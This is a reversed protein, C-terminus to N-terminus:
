RGRGDSVEETAGPSPTAAPVVTAPPAYVSPTPPVREPAEPPVATATATGTATATATLAPAEPPTGGDPIFWIACGPALVLALLIAGGRLLSRVM